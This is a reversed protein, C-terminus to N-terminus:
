KNGNIQKEQSGTIQQCQDNEQGNFNEWVYEMGSRKKM